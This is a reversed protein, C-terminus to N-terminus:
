GKGLEGARASHLAVIGGTFQRWSVDGFGAERIEATVGAADPFEGISAALYRYAEPERTIIGAVWPSLTRLYYYYFPRLWAAPQSFELVHLQGHDTLVRRMERLARPRDAMNRLGFAITVADFSADPCPLALGDGSEFQVRAIRSDGAREQKARAVELMPVCFDMGTIRTGPPLRRALDFAVDGSGTALDLVSRPGQNAVAGVLRRRWARDIGFSLVRNARDYRRAVQGFMSNIAVPDPM